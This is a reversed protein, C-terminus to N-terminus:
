EGKGALIEEAKDKEIYGYKVMKDIVQQQRQATLPTNNDPSYVSPANPVGALETADFDSLDKPHVDYYGMAADYICYYGSGYYINNVYFEFIEDKSYNRELEIAMFMEAVKRVLKKEQTFYLNKAVQQTITSGGETYERAKINKLIARATSVISIPGHGYYNHDEAALVANVYIEPLQDKTIFNDRGRLEAIKTELPCEELVAKYENYGTIGLYAVAFCGVVIVTILLAAIIRGILRFVSKM